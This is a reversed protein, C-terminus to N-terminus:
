RRGLVRPYEHRPHRHHQEYGLDRRREWRFIVNAFDYVLVFAHASTEARACPETNIISAQQHLTTRYVPVPKTPGGAICASFHADNFAVSAGTIAVCGGDGSNYGKSFSLGSFTVNAGTTIDFLGQGETELGKFGADTTGGRITLDSDGITIANTGIQILGMVVIDSEGGDIASQLEGQTTVESAAAAMVIGVAMTLLLQLRRWLSAAAPRRGWARRAAMTTTHTTSVGTTYAQTSEDM